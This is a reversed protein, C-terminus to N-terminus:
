PFLRHRRAVTSTRCWCRIRCRTAMTPRSSWTGGMTRSRAAWSGSRTTRERTSSHFYLKQFENAAKLADAGKPADYSTYYFGSGDKRWSGGGAKSWHIEDPLDTGTDVNRVHWIQWDSGADSLAYAFLRGDDSVATERLAVTGDQSLTNPDLLIRGPTGPDTTVFIVAQNQLGDNHTYFWYHGHRAPAGWREYNWIEKLRAAIAARGPLAALYDRSLKDEAEVWTRTAPSDIDEMWRYPDPVKVSHYDSSVDGRAATPYTLTQATTALAVTAVLSALGIWLSRM